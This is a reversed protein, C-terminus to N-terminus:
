AAQQAATSTEVGVPTQYGLRSHRRQRNYGVTIWAVLATRAEQRTSWHRRAVRETTITANVREALATDYCDGARSLSPTIRHQALVAPYARATDQCGRDRHQVLPGPQPQRQRLALQLAELVLATRLHDALAFGV